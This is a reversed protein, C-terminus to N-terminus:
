GEVPWVRLKGPNLLAQPDFRRKAAVAAPPLTGGFRGDEVHEHHPNNVRVGLARYEDIIQQLRAEGTYRVLPLATCILPGDGSRIFEVHMLVEDGFRGHVARVQQLHQDATFSCQLYTLGPDVKMAHLTSHNWCMELVTQNRRQADISGASHTVTGGHRAALDRVADESSQAVVALVADHGAPFAHEWRTIFAPVPTALAAINRKVLGPAVALAQGFDLAADFGKFVVVLEQWEQAPALALELDLLIGTTGWTHHLALVDAGRLDVAQPEPEVSLVRAGLVNGPAAIPGYNISGVGGFGGAFLGGLTAIRFTSPLARLEQGQERTRRELEALRIGAQARVVGGRQWLLQNLGGMDVLVGGQLPTCQGYNGTAAGRLTLPIARRACAAVLQVLEAEDRPRVAVQAVRGALKAKLIPSFWSFDRSLVALRETDTTWDLAPLEHQLASVDHPIM